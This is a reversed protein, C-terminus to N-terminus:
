GCLDRRSYGRELMAKYVRLITACVEKDFDEYDAQNYGIPRDECYWCNLKNCFDLVDIGLSATVELIEKAFQRPTTSAKRESYKWDPPFKDDDFPGYLRDAHGLEGALYLDHSVNEFTVRDPGWSMPFRLHLNNTVRLQYSRWSEGELKESVETEM